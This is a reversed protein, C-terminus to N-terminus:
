RNHNQGQKPPEPLGMMYRYQRPTCTVAAIGLETGPAPFFLEPQHFMAKYRETQEDSLSAFSYDELGCIFFTGAIITYDDVQRNLPLRENIANDNCVLVVRDRWPYVPEFDGGVIAQISNLTDDIEKEQPYKGPEIILVKM